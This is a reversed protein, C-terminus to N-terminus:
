LIYDSDAVKFGLFSKFRDRMIDELDKLETNVRFLVDEIKLNGETIIGYITAVTKDLIEHVEATEENNILHRSSQIMDELYQVKLKILSRDLKTQIRRIGDSDLNNSKSVIYELISELSNNLLNKTRVVLIEFILHKNPTGKVTDYVNILLNHMQSSEINQDDILNQINDIKRSVNSVEEVAQQLNKSNYGKILKLNKQLYVLIAVIILIVGGFYTGASLPAAFSEFDLLGSQKLIIIAALIIVPVGFEKLAAKAFEGEFM